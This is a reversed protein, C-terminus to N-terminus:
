SITKLENCITRILPHHLRYSSQNAILLASSEFLTDIIDLQHEKLTAGTATLDCIIDALGTLPALEIAGYLKIIKAKIGKNEFYKAASHPYKTAVKISHGLPKCATHTPGATVLRCYGFKLDALKLVNSKKELLVDNGVIGIDAAKHEVYEPVDWPRIKLIKIRGDKSLAFLKRSEDFEPVDMGIKKLRLLGEDLLYGKALAITFPQTQSM